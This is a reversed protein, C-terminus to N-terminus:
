KKRKKIERISYANYFTMTYKWNSKVLQISYTMTMAVANETIAIITINVMTIVPVTMFGKINTMRTTPVNISTTTLLILGQTLTLNLNKISFDPLYVILEGSPLRAYM